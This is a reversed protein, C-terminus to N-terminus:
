QGKVGKQKSKTASASSALPVRTTPKRRFSLPSIGEARKFARSFYQPSAFGSLEAVRAADLATNLLLYKAREIRLGFLYDAFTVQERAAFLRSFHTPSIGAVRAVRALTLPEAYHQQLYELASRLSRDQRASAPKQVAEALDAVARRYVVFLENMTRAQGAAGDTRRQLVAFSKPDLVGSTVLARAIRDFGVEVHARAPDLRYRCHVTVVELYRDFRAGLLAPQEEVNKGLEERLHRLSHLPRSQEAEAVVLRAGQVLASEAAALAAQYDQHLNGPQKSGAIGCHLAFGFERRALASAKDVLDLLKQRSKGPTGRRGSLFVVGHDGVQGAITEGHERALAVARRQFGDRGVAEEVPQGGSPSVALAVLAHEPVRSLGVRKLAGQHSAGPWTHPFREDLMENAVGWAREALRTSELEVRLSEIRNMVQDARAEGGLLLALCELLGVFSEFLKGELVLLGLSASMYASFEPDAPHGQSGSLARWRELIEASSPRTKALPGAVLIAVVEGGTLIPVYLDWYGAHEGVFTKKTKRVLQGNRANYQNRAADKGHETEFNQVSREVYLPFWEAGHEWISTSARLVQLVHAAISVMIAHGSGPALRHVVCDTTKNRSSHWAHM